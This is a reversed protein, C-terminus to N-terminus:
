EWRFLWVALAFSVVCWAALALTHPAVAALSAGENMIARLADNTLTLPLAKIFPQMADPFREASFFSGSLLWM